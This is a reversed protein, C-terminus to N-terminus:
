LWVRSSGHHRSRSARPSSHAQPLSPSPYSDNWVGDLAIPYEIKHKAVLEEIQALPHAQCYLTFVHLGKPGYEKHLENMHPLQRM